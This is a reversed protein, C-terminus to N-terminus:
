ATPAASWAAAASVVVLAAGSALTAGSTSAAMGARSPGPAALSTGVAGLASAGATSRSAPASAASAPLEGSAAAPVPMDAGFGASAAAVVGGVEYGCGVPGGRLSGSPQAHASPAGVLFGPQPPATLKTSPPSQKARRQRRRVRYPRRAASHKRIRFLREDTRGRSATRM